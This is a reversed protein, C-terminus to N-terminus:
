ESGTSAYFYESPTTDQMHIIVDFWQSIQAPASLNEGGLGYLLFTSLSHAWNDAPGPSLNRLDLMYLPLGVQGLTYNYTMPGPPDITQLSNKPYFQYIRFTGQYLTTGIPLYSQYYCAHLEGGMNRRDPTAYSTDSAIHVDHAWVMIKPHTGAEHDYIWEVNEAMFTDRQYYRALAEASTTADLYTAIQVIVRANQLALAFQQPSSTNSYRQQNKQLLNYVQQAQALYQKKTSADLQYYGVGNGILPQYLNDVPGSQRPDVKQVYSEVTNFDNQDFSQVDMGLFHIKTSHAPNANYARMWAFLYEYEQTQWSGFLATTMITKLNGPGGNIYADLLESSGWDNEMVLTTFHMDTILFEVLRAKMDIFEHTGHTEEGLGVISANGVIQKLPALDANSGGPNTTRLPVAHHQMWHVLPDSSLKLTKASPPSQACAALTLLLLLICRFSIKGRSM